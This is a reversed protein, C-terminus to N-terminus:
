VAPRPVHHRIDAMDGATPRRQRAARGEVNKENIWRPYIGGCEIGSYQDKDVGYSDFVQLEYRGMIYIGSNSHKSICFEIHIQADGFGAETTLNVTKAKPGNVFIGRGPTIAFKMPDAADLSVAKAVTWEGTPKHRGTFDKGSFLSRTKEAAPLTSTAL